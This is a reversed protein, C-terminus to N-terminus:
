LYTHLNLDVARTHGEVMGGGSTPTSTIVFWVGSILLSLFGLWGPQLWFHSEIMYTIKSDVLSFSSLNSKNLPLFAIVVFRNREM